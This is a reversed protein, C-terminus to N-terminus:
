RLVRPSGLVHGMKDIAGPSPFLVQWVMLLSLAGLLLVLGTEPIVPRRTVRLLARTM